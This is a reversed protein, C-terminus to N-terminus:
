HKERGQTWAARRSLWREERGIKRREKRRKRGEKTREKREGGSVGVHRKEKNERREKVGKEHRRMGTGGQRKEKMYKGDGAKKNQGREKRRM